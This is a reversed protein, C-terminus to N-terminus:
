LTLSLDRRIEDNDFGSTICVAVREAYRVATEDFDGAKIFREELARAKKQGM